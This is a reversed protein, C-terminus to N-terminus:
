IWSRPLPDFLEKMHQCRFSKSPEYGSDFGSINSFRRPHCSTKKNTNKKFYTTPHQIFKPVNNHRDFLFRCLVLCIHLPSLWSMYIYYTYIYKCMCCVLNSVAWPDPKETQRYVQATVDSKKVWGLLMCDGYRWGVPDMPSPFIDRCKTSKRHYIYSFTVTGHIMYIYIYPITVSLVLRIPKVRAPIFLNCGGVAAQDTNIFSTRDPNKEIRFAQCYRLWLHKKWVHKLPSNIPHYMALWSATTTTATTATTRTRTRRRKQGEAALILRFWIQKAELSTKFVRSM